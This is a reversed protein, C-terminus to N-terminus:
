FVQNSVIDNVEFGILFCRWCCSHGIRSCNGMEVFHIIYEYIPAFQFFTKDSVANEDDNREIRVVKTLEFTGAILDGYTQNKGKIATSREAQKTILSSQYEREFTNRKDEGLHKLALDKLENIIDVYDRMILAVKQDHKSSRDSYLINNERNKIDYYIKPNIGGKSPHVNVIYVELNPIKDKDKKAVKDM